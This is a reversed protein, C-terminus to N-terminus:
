ERNSNISAMVMPLHELGCDPSCETVRERPLGTHPQLKFFAGAM